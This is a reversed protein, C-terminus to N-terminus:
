SGPFGSTFLVFPALPRPPFYLPPSPLYAASFTSRHRRTEAHQTCFRGWLSTYCTDPSKRGFCHTPIPSFTRHLLRARNTHKSQSEKLSSNSSHSSSSSIQSVLSFFRHALSNLRLTKARETRNRKAYSQAQLDSCQAAPNLSVAASSSRCSQEATRVLKSGARM